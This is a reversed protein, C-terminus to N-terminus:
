PVPVATYKGPQSAFDDRCAPSCFWWTADGSVYHPTAPEQEVAMGCVPDTAM